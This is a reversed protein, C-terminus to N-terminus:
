VNAPGGLGEALESVMDIISMGRRAAERRIADYAVTRMRVTTTSGDDEPLGWEAEYEDAGLHGEAWRMAEAASLPTIMAGSAWGGLGDREAFPTMPGGKEHLFYEGTRKRHLTADIRGLDSQELGNDWSGVRAATDTDYTRGDIVKRM